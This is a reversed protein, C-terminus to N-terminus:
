WSNYHVKSEDYQTRPKKMENPYGLAVLSFPTIEAPIALIQRVRHCYESNPYIGLWVSGLGLATAALLINQTAAACDQSWLPNPRGAHTEEGCVAICLTAERLMKAYRHVEALEDLMSRESVVVFHWPQFNHGSPAAMAAKLLENVKHEEVAQDTFRRISRRKYITELM